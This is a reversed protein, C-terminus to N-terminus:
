VSATLDHAKTHVFRTLAKRGESRLQRIERAVRVARWGMRLDAWLLECEGTGAPLNMIIGWDQNLNGVQAGEGTEPDYVLSRSYIALQMAMKLAGYEVTGTKLDTIIREEPSFVHGDPAILTVGPKISSVRDPTGAVRFEHLVMLREMLVIDVLDFTAQRYADMDCVDEFSVDDPLAIGQDVLESLGHLYTGREAKDDSGARKTASEARRNLWNKAAKEEESKPEARELDDWHVLVDDLLSPELAAGVLTMRSKWTMLQSKDEIVDIFTTTRVYPEMRYGNGNCRRCKITAPPPKKESPVRGEVCTEVDCVLRVLPRGLYDRPVRNDGGAERVAVVPSAEGARKLM